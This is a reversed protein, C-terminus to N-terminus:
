APVVLLGSHQAAHRLWGAEQALALAADLARTPQVQRHSMFGIPTTLVPGTLPLAELGEHGRVADVLAGPLVSCLEGAVVSLALTLVSDTEMAPQVSAGASRFAADVLSRNHMAPTLLCLPSRAADLWSIPPGIQLGRGQPQGARRLLFYHEVYQPWSRLAGGLAPMRETYGLALDLSISELGAELAQSSMSLAVPVIGPHRAQLLAAFRALIPMATPVAGLRLTGRPHAAESSLEQQLVTHEHLMRQASALVREGEPTFGEFSRGRRVVVVGFEKELARLANSLAPQTIHCAQAARGFHRHEHLAMLYRLSALLNM